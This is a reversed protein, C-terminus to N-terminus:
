AMRPPHFIPAVRHVRGLQETLFAHPTSPSEGLQLASWWCAWHDRVLEVTTAPVTLPTQEGSCAPGRCPAKGPENPCRQCPTPRPTPQPDLESKAPRQESQTGSGNQNSSQTTHHQAVPSGHSGMNVYDGCSARATPALAGQVLFAAIVASAPFAWTTSRFRNM